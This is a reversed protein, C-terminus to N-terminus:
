ARRASRREKCRGIKMDRHECESRTITRSCLTLVVQIPGFTATLHNASRRIRSTDSGSTQYTSRYNTLNYWLSKYQTIKHKSYTNTQYTTLYTTLYTTANRLFMSWKWPLLTKWGSSPPLRNVYCELTCDSNRSEGQNSSKRVRHKLLTTIDSSLFHYMVCYTQVMSSLRRTVWANFAGALLM